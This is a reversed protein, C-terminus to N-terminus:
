NGAPILGLRGMLEMRRDNVEMHRAILALAGEEHGRRDADIIRRGLAEVELTLTLYTQMETQRTATTM